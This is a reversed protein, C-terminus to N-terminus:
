YGKNQRDINKMMKSFYIHYLDEATLGSLVMLELFFHFADILEEKFANKDTDPPNNRWPKKKLLNMAEYLEETLFFTTARIIEQGKLTDINCKEIEGMGIIKMFDKQWEFLQELKDMDEEKFKIITHMGPKSHKLNM